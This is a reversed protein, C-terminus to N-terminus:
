GHVDMTSQASPPLLQLQFLWKSLPPPFWLTLPLRSFSLSSLLCLPLTSSSCFSIFFATYNNVEHYMFDPMVPLTCWSFIPTMSSCPNSWQTDFVTRSKWSSSSIWSNSIQIISDTNSRFYQNITKEKKLDVSFYIFVDVNPSHFRHNGCSCVFLLTMRLIWLRCM